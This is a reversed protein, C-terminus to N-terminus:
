CFKQFKTKNSKFYEILELMILCLSTLEVTYRSCLIQTTKFNACAINELQAKVNVAYDLGPVMLRGAQIDVRKQNACM